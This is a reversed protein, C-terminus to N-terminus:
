CAANWIPVPLAITRWKRSVATAPPMGMLRKLVLGIRSKGEGGKGVILMMKQGKTSPILCYGLYEQLTPIDAEDLLEHLFTLWRDPTAAKPDYKM